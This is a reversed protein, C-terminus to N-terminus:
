MSLIIITVTKCLFSNTCRKYEFNDLKLDPGLDIVFNRNLSEFSLVQVSVTILCVVVVVGCM